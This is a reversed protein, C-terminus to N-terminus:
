HAAEPTEPDAGADATWLVRYGLRWQERREPDDEGEDWPTYSGDWAAPDGAFEREFWEVEDNPSLYDVEEGTIELTFTEGVEVPGDYLLLDLPGVHNKSAKEPISIIGEEPFMTDKVLGRFNSRVRCLFRFEGVGDLDMSDTVEIWDLIVQLNGPYKEPRGPTAGSM